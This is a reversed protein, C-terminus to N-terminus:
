NTDENIAQLSFDGDNVGFILYREGQHDANALCLIDHVLNGNNTHHQRKFDWYAGEKKREILNIITQTLLQKDNM